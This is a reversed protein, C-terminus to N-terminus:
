LTTCGLSCRRGLTPVCDCNTIAVSVPPLMGGNVHAMQASGLHAITTRDLNLRKNSKKM